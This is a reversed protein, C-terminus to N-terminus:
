ATFKKADAVRATLWASWSQGLAKGFLDITGKKATEMGMYYAILLDDSKSAAQAFSEVDTFGILKLLQPLSGLFSIKEAKEAETRASGNKLAEARLRAAEAEKEAKKQAAKRTREQAKADKEAQLALIIATVEQNSAAGKRAADLAQAKTM